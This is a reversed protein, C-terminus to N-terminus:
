ATWDDPNPPRDLRDALHERDRQVHSPALVHCGQVEGSELSEM